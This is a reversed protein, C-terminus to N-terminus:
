PAPPCGAGMPIFRMTGKHTRISVELQVAVGWGICVRWACSSVDEVAEGAWMEESVTVNVAVVEEVESVVPNARATSNCQTFTGALDTGKM